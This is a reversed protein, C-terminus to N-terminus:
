ESFKLPQTCVKVAWQIRLNSYTCTLRFYYPIESRVKTNLYLSLALNFALNVLICTSEFTFNKNQTVVYTQLIKKYKPKKTAFNRQISQIFNSLESRFYKCPDKKLHDSSVTPYWQYKFSHLNQLLIRSM